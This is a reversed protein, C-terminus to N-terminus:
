SSLKEQYIDRNVIETIRIGFNDEVVVIDGRAICEGNVYLDAQEGAMKDLVVLSGQTLELIERVPKMTRGIEVSIELPVKMLMERNEPVEEANKNEDPFSPSNASRIVSNERKEAKPASTPTSPSAKREEDTKMERILELMQAQSQQMSNILQMMMPAMAAAGADAGAAAPQPSPATHSSAKSAEQPTSAEAALVSAQPAPGPTAAGAPAKAEATGGAMEARTKELIADMEEQTMPRNGSTMSRAKEILADTEAQNLVGGAQPMKPAAEEGAPKGPAASAAPEASAASEASAAPEASAATTDEPTRAEATDASADSEGDEGDPIGMSERFPEMMKKALDIAMINMFESSIKDGVELTFRVVVYEDNGPFYEKKFEKDDGIEFCTPTSINVPYGLFESLATAASGMMQNMVECIASKNMEDMEFQDEPIEMGMMMGVIIRVDNRSFLMINRGSLGETYSIAVGIAPELDQFQFSKKTQVKVIPTTINTQAGLLNSVATASAGLSINMIEGIADIEMSNLKTSAM